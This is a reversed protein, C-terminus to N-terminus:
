KARVEMVADQEYVNNEDTTMLTTIKHSDGDTGAKMVITVVGASQSSSNIVEATSDAGTAINISTTAQSAAAETGNFRDTAFDFTIPFFESPQKPFYFVAM